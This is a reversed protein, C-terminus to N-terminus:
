YNGKAADEKHWLHILIKTNRGAQLYLRLVLVFRISIFQAKKDASFKRADKMVRISYSSGSSKNQHIKQDHSSM